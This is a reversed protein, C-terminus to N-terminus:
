VIKRLLRWGKETIAAALAPKGTNYAEAAAAIPTIAAKVELLTEQQAVWDMNPSITSVAALQLEIPENHADEESTIDFFINALVETNTGYTAKISIYYQGRELGSVHLSCVEDTLTYYCVKSTDTDLVLAGTVGRQLLRISLTELVECDLPNAEQAGDVGAARLLSQVAIDFQQANGAFSYEFNKTRM